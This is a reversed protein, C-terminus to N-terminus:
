CLVPVNPIICGSSCLPGAPFNLSRRKASASNATARFRGQDQVRAIPRKDLSGMLVCQPHKRRLLVPAPDVLKVKLFREGEAM